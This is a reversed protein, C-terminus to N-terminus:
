HSGKNRSQVSEIQKRYAAMYEAETKAGQKAGYKTKIAIKEQTPTLRITSRKGPTNLGGRLVTQGGGNQKTGMIRDVEALNEQATKHPNKEWVRKAVTLAKVFDPDPDNPDDTQVWPRLPQGREDKESQWAEIIRTDTDTIPSATSQQQQQAQTKQPQQPQQRQQLKLDLLKNQKELYTKNDGSEWATQMEQMLSAESEAAQRGHLHNVVQGVGNMLEDIAASQQQAITKYERNTREHDKVQRYLYNIRDDIEKQKEPPLDDLSVPEYGAPRGPDRQQQAQPDPANDQTVEGETGTDTATDSM